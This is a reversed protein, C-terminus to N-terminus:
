RWGGAARHLATVAKRMDDSTSSKTVNDHFRQRANPPVDAPLLTLGHHVWTAFYERSLVRLQHLVDGAREALEIERIAVVQMLAAVLQHGRCQPATSPQQLFAGLANEDKESAVDTIADLYELVSVVADRKVDTSVLSVNVVEFVVAALETSLLEPLFRRAARRLLYFLEQLYDSTYTHQDRLISVTKNTLTSLIQILPQVCSETKGFVGVVTAMVWLISSFPQRLFCTVLADTVSQLYPAFQVDCAHLVNRVCSTLQELVNENNSTRLVQELVPWMAGFAVVWARALPETQNRREVSEVGRYLATLRQLEATLVTENNINAQMNELPGRCLAEIASPLKEETFECVVTGLGNMLKEQDKLPLGKAAEHIQLLGAFHNVMHKSCKSCLRQIAEVSVGAVQPNMFSDGIYKLLGPLFATGKSELWWAFKGILYVFSSRVRWHDPLLESSGLLQPNMEDCLEVSAYVYRVFFLVAEVTRWRSPNQPYEAVAQQM